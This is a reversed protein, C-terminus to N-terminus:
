IKDVWENEGPTKPNATMAELALLGSGTV